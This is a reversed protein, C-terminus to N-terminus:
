GSLGRREGVISAGPMICRRFWCVGTCAWSEPESLKVRLRLRPAKGDLAPGKMGRVGAGGV